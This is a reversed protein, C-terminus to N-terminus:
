VILGTDVPTFAQAMPYCFTGGESSMDGHPSPDALFAQLLMGQESSPRFINTPTCTYISRQCHVQENQPPQLPHHHHHHHQHCDQNTRSGLRLSSAMHSMSPLAAAELTKYAVEELNVSRQEEMTEDMVGTPSVNSLPPRMPAEATPAPTESTEFALQDEKLCGLRMSGCGSHAQAPQLYDDHETRGSVEVQRTPFGYYSPFSSGNSMVAGSSGSCTVSVAAEFPSTTDVSQSAWDCYAPHTDGNGAALMVPFTPAPLNATGCDTVSQQQQQHLLATPNELAFRLESSDQVALRSKVHPFKSTDYLTTDATHSHPPEVSTFLDVPTTSPRSSDSYAYDFRLCPLSDMGTASIYSLQASSPPFARHEPLSSTNGEFCTTSAHTALDFPSTSHMHCVTEPFRFNLATGEVTHSNFVEFNGAEEGVTAGNLGDSGSGCGNIVGGGANAQHSFQDSDYQSFRHSPCFHVMTHPLEDLPFPHGELPYYNYSQPAFSLVTSPFSPMEMDAESIGPPSVSSSPLKPFMPKVTVKPLTPRTNSPKGSPSTHHQQQQQKQKRRPRYKYDPYDEMHRARLKCAEEVFPQKEVESLAKWMSGLRKSIESNHMKPNELGMQRRQSRSWVMFANMPRKVRESKVHTLGRSETKEQNHKTEGSVTSVASVTM